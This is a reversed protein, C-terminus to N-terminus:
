RVSRMVSWLILTNTFTGIRADRILLVPKAKKGPTSFCNKPAAQM